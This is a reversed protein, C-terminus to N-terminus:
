RLPISIAQLKYSAVTMARFNLHFRNNPGFPTGTLPSSCVNTLSPTPPSDLIIGAKQLNEIFGDATFESHGTTVTIGIPAM